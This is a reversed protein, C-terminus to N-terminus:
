ASQCRSVDGDATLADWWQLLQALARTYSVYCNRAVVEQLRVLWSVFCVVLDADWHQVERQLPQM